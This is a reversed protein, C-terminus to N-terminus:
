RIRLGYAWHACCRRRGLGFGCYPHRKHEATKATKGELLDQVPCARKVPRRKQLPPGDGNWLPLDFSNAGKSGQARLECVRALNRPASLRIPEPRWDVSRIKM